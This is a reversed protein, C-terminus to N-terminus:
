CGPKPHPERVVLSVQIRIKKLQSLTSLWERPTSPQDEKEDEVAIQIFRTKKVSQRLEFQRDLALNYADQPHDLM